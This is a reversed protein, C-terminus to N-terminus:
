KGIEVTIKVDKSFIEYDSMDGLDLEDLNFQKMDEETEPKRTVHSISRMVDYVASLDHCGKKFTFVKADKAVREKAEKNEIPKASRTTGGETNRRLRRFSESYLLQVVDQLYEKETGSLAPFYRAPNRMDSLLNVLLSEGLVEKHLCDFDTDSMGKPKGDLLGGYVLWDLVSVVFADSKDQLFTKVKSDLQKKLFANM